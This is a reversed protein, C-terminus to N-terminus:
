QYYILHELFVMVRSLYPYNKSSFNNTIKIKIGENIAKLTDFINNNM